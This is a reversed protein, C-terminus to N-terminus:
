HQWRNGDDRDRWNNRRDGGRHNWGSSYNLSIGTGYNSGYYGGYGNYYAPGNYYSYAPGNYYNAPYVRRCRVQGYYDRFCRQPTYIPRNYYGGNYYGPGSAVSVGFSDAHALPVAGVSAACCVVFAAQKLLGIKSIM